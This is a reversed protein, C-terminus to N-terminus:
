RVNVVEEAHYGIKLVVLREGWDVFCLYNDTGGIFRPLTLHIDDPNKKMAMADDHNGYSGIHMILNGNTDVVGIAYRYGEPVFCRKFWDLHFRTTPCTCGHASIPTVGAYMWNVNEVWSNPSKYPNVGTLEFPRSPSPNMPIVWKELFFNSGKPPVKILTGTFPTKNEHTLPTDMGLNGGRGSLFPKGAKTTRRLTVFYLAGDEDVQVGAMVGGANVAMEDKLEGTAYYTWITAGIIPIGPHRKIFYVQEGKKMQETLSKVFSAYKNDPPMGLGRAARDARGTLNFNRSHDDMKPTYYINCQEAIDGRM